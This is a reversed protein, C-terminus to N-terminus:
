AFRAPCFLSPSPPSLFIAFVAGFTFAADALAVFALAPFGTPDFPVLSAGFGAFFAAGLAAAFGTALVAAAAALGAAFVVFAGDFVALAFVAL